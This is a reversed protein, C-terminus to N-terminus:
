PFLISRRFAKRGAPPPEPPLFGRHARRPVFKEDVHNEPIIRKGRAMSRSILTAGVNIDTGLYHVASCDIISSDSNDIVKEVRDLTFPHRDPHWRQTETRVSNMKSALPIWRSCTDVALQKFPLPM